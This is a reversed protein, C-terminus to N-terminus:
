CELMAVREAHRGGEPAAALYTDVCRKVSTLTQLDASFALMNAHNHRRSYEAIHECWAVACRAGEVKNAAISIGVGSGCIVIGLADPVGGGVVAKAVTHGFRPYDTREASDTGHDVVRHGRERLYDALQRKLEYGRHDAGLHIEM